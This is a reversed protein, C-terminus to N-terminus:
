DILEKVLHIGAGLLALGGVTKLVKKPFDKDKSFDKDKFFENKEEKFYDKIKTVM